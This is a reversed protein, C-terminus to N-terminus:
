EIFLLKDPKIKDQLKKKVELVIKNNIDRAQDRQVKVLERLDGKSYEDWSFSVNEDGGCDYPNVYLEEWRELANHGGSDYTQGLYEVVVHSLPNECEQGENEWSRYGVLLKSGPLLQSLAVAFEVCYGELYKEPNKSFSKEILSSLKKM